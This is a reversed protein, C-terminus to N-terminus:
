VASLSLANQRLPYYHHPGDSHRTESNQWCPQPQGLSAHYEGRPKTDRVWVLYNESWSYHRTEEGLHWGPGRGGESQANEWLEYWVDLALKM